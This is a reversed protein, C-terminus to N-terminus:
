PRVPELDDAPAKPPIPAFYGIVLMLVGVTIFSVIRGILGLNGMDVLFLKGIVVALLVAGVIWYARVVRRTAYGMLALAISTWLITVTAQFTDSEVIVEVPYPVDGYFHVARMAVTNIWAFAAAGLVARPLWPAGALAAVPVGRLWFAGLLLVGLGILEVPNALVLYPIPSPDAAFLGTLLLWGLLYGYAALWGWGFYAGPAAGFPWRERGRLEMMLVCAALPVGGWLVYTWVSNALVGDVVAAANWTVFLTAFWWSGAHWAGLLPHPPTVVRLQWYIVAFAVPWALWGFDAFATGRVWDIDLGVLIAAAMPLLLFGPHFGTRWDRARAIFSLLALSLAAYILFLHEGLNTATFRPEGPTDLSLERFGGGLWWVVGWGLLFAGIWPEVRTLASRHRGIVAATFVGAVGLFAVGLYASNLFLTAEIPRYFEALFALGAGLQLLIGFARPLRQAQRVGVWYIGAGELAWTAATYRQNDFAFPIALTAFVVALAVFSRDLLHDLRGIRKLWLALGTYILAAALASYALGFPMDRVLGAQLAFAIVPTGFVLTGDVVGKLEVGRQRAFLLSVAVYYFFFLILFPETSAFYKPEYYQWGWSAGIVFTFVFGTWNLWRWQRFWAMGLIGANLLAYYSFLAVHSGEGTSTLVPALFGGSMSFIALAQSKQVVALVSAGAVLVVLVAFAAGMPLLDYLRASAFVTLYLIALGVGQLVLGYTDARDRLRWGFSLLVIGGLGAGALRLEVPVLSHEYAYRLLYAVGIFLVVAGIRVVPNGTTAFRVVADRLAELRAALVSPERAPPAEWVRDAGPAPEATAPAAVPETAERVAGVPTSERAVPPTFAPQEAATDLAGGDLADLRESLSRIAQAQRWLLGAIFGLVAGILFGGDFGLLGGLVAGVFALGFHM